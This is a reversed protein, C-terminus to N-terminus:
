SQFLLTSLAIAPIKAMLTEQIEHRLRLPWERAAPFLVIDHLKSWTGPSSLESVESQQTAELKRYQRAEFM